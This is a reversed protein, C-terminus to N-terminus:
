WVIRCQTSAVPPPVDTCCPCCTISGARKGRARVNYHTGTGVCPGGTTPSPSHLSLSNDGLEIKMQSLAEQPSSYEYTRPLSSCTRYEPYETACTPQGSTPGPASASPAPGVVPIGSGPSGPGGFPPLDPIPTPGCIASPGAWGIDAVTQAQACVTEVITRGFLVWAAISVAGTSVLVILAKKLNDILIRPAHLLLAM